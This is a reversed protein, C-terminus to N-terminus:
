LGIIANGIVTARFRYASGSVNTVRIAIYMTVQVTDGKLWVTPANEDFTVAPVAVLGGFQTNKGVLIDNVIFADSISAPILLRKVKMAVLAQSEVSASDGAAVLGKSEFGLPYQGIRSPVGFDGLHLHPTELAKDPGTCICSSLKDPHRPCGYKHEM